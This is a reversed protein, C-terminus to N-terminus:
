IYKSGWIVTNKLMIRTRLRGNGFSFKLVPYRVSWDWQGHIDLGKFLVENGEFLEKLTDLFLSKGFRRPWSLFYHTGENILLYALSTKDVHYYNDSRIQAFTQVGLPLKRRTM